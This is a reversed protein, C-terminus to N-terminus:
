VHVIADEWLTFDMVLDGAGVYFTDAGLGGYLTDSGADGAITDNGGNGYISVM